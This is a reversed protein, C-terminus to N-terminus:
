CMILYSSLFIKDNTYWSWHYLISLSCMPLDNEWLKKIQGSLLLLFQEGLHFFQEGPCVNTSLLWKLRFNSNVQRKLCSLHVNGLNKKQRIDIKCMCMIYVPTYIYRNRYHYVFVNICFVEEIESIKRVPYLLFSWEWFEEWTGTIWWSKEKTQLMSLEVKGLAFHNFWCPCIIAYKILHKATCSPLVLSLYTDGAGPLLKVHLLFSLVVVRVILGTSILRSPM